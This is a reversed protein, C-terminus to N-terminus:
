SLTKVNFAEFKAFQMAIDEAKAIRKRPSKTTQKSPSQSNRTAEKSVEANSTLEQMQKLIPSNIQLSSELEDSQM